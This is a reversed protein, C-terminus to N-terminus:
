STPPFIATKEGLDILRVKQAVMLSLRHKIKGGTVWLNQPLITRLLFEFFPILKRDRTRGSLRYSISFIIKFFCLVLVPFINLHNLM